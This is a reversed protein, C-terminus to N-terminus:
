SLPAPMNAPARRVKLDHLLYLVTGDTGATGSDAVDVSIYSCDSSLSDASVTFAYICQNTDDAADETFTASAAQSVKTWTETGALSAAAKKYVESIKALNRSTGSAAATHEQLTIVVPETDTSGEKVVLVTVADCNKLSVRKGTSAGAGFDSVPVGNSIDFLRGLALQSAM